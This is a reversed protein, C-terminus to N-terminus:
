VKTVKLTDAMQHLASIPINKGSSFTTNLSMLKIGKLAEVMKQKEEEMDAVHKGKPGKENLSVFFSISLTFDHSYPSQACPDHRDKTLFQQISLVIHSSISM